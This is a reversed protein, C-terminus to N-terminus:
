DLDLIEHIDAKARNYKTEINRDIDTYFRIQKGDDTMEAMFGRKDKCYDKMKELDFSDTIVKEQDRKLRLIDIAIDKAEQALEDHRKELERKRKIMAKSQEAIKALATKPKIEHIFAQKGEIVAKLGTTPDILKSM